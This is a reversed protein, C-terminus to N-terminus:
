RGDWDPLPDPEGALRATVYAAVNTLWETRRAEPIGLRDTTQWLWGLLIDLDSESLVSPILRATERADEPREDTFQDLAARLDLENRVVAGLCMELEFMTPSYLEQRPHDPWKGGDWGPLPDDIGDIRGRIYTAVRGLWAHYGGERPSPHLGLGPRQLRDELQEDSLDAALLQEIEAVARRPTDYSRPNNEVFDDIADRPTAYFDDWDENLFGAILEWLGDGSETKDRM